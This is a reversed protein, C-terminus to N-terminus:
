RQIHGWFLNTVNATKKPLFPDSLYQPANCNELSMWARARHLGLPRARSAAAESSTWIPGSLARSGAKQGSWSNAPERHRVQAIDLVLDSAIYLADNAVDVAVGSAHQLIGDGFGQAPGPVDQVSWGQLTGAALAGLWGLPVGTALDFKQLRNNGADAVFLQGGAASLGGINLLAGLQPDDSFGGGATGGSCWSGSLDGAVPVTTQGACSSPAAYVWGYWGILNGSALDIRSLTDYYTAYLTTGDISIGNNGDLASYAANVAGSSANYQQVGNQSAVYLNGGALAIGLPYSLEGPASGPESAGGTCWSGTYTHVGPLPGAASCSIPVAGVGGVWGATQSTSLAVRMVASDIDSTFYIYTTDVAIGDAFVANGSM